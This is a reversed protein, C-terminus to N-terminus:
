SCCPLPISVKNSSENATEKSTGTPSNSDESSSSEDLTSETNRRPLMPAVDHEQTTLIGRCAPYPDSLRRPLRPPLNQDDHDRPWTPMRLHDKCKIKGHRSDVLSQSRAYPMHEEHPLVPLRLDKNPVATKSHRDSSGQHSHLVQIRLKRESRPRHESLENHTKDNAIEINYSTAGAQMGKTIFKVVAAWGKRADETWDSAPLIGQLTRLLATELISYHLQNVGYSVHRKGLSKFNEALDSLGDEDGQMLGLVAGLMAVVATTHREFAPSEFITKLANDSSGSTTSKAASGFRYLSLARPDLAFLNQFLARGVVLNYDPIQRIAAWTDAAREIAFIYIEMM